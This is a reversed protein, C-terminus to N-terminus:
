QFRYVQMESDDNLIVYVTKIYVTRYLAEYQLGEVLKNYAWYSPDHFYLCIADVNTNNDRNYNKLQRNKHKIASRYDRVNEAISALDMLIDDLYMDLDTLNDDEKRFIVKHGNKFAREFFRQELDDAKLIEGKINYTKTDNPHTKHDKHWAKLAGTKWEFDVNKYEPDNKYKIYEECHEMVPKVYNEVIEKSKPTLREVYSAKDSFIKGTTAPNGDLGLAATETQPNGDTVPEDTEHWDCKCNWLNGPQNKNWFPDTKAWIRNWFVRHVERPEASTSPLWKLNPLVDMRDKDMFEEFQKATRSRAVATNYEAAQFSNYRKETWEADTLSNERGERRIDQTANYAKFAGFRTANAKLRLALDSDEEKYFVADVAKRLNESYKDYLERSVPYDSTVIDTAHLALPYFTKDANLHQKFVTLSDNYEDNFYM